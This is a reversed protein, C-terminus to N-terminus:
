MEIRQNLIQRLATLENRTDVFKYQIVKLQLIDGHVLNIVTDFSTDKVRLHKSYFSGTLLRCKYKSAIIIKEFEDYELDNDYVSAVVSSSYKSFTKILSETYSAVSYKLPSSCVSTLLYANSQSTKDLAERLVSELYRSDNSEDGNSVHLVCFVLCHCRLSGVCCTKIVDCGSSEGRLLEYKNKLAQGSPSSFLTSLTTNLISNSEERPVFIVMTDVYGHEVFSGAYLLIRNENFCLAGGIYQQKSAHDSRHDSIIEVKISVDYKSQISSIEEKINESLKRSGPIAKIMYNHHYISKAISQLKLVRGKMKDSMGNFLIEGQRQNSEISLDENLSQTKQYAPLPGEVYKKFEAKFEDPFLM